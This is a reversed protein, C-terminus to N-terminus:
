KFINSGRDPNSSNEIRGTNGNFDLVEYAGTPLDRSKLIEIYMGKEVGATRNNIETAEADTIGKLVPKKYMNWLGVLTNVIREIDGAEGINTPHLRMLNTVERNFQAALILPLGTTVAVDKLSICIQKLEEVRSSYNRYKDQPLKLLQFYDIFVGGINGAEKNLYQIAGTLEQSNYDVYKVLIRGTEIYTKFFTAKKEEFEKILYHSFFQTSGTKFYEKIIRRNAKDSSNLNENIYANLFYQVISNAREEYTFFIFRKDPYSEAVNLVMNILAITKGHNTPAAVVTIAGGPLLFENGGVTYGTDLSDPLSLEEEKIIAESTTTLLKSFETKKDQLKVEKVKTELKGLAEEVKGEAQLKTAETLLKKLEQAQAEKERTATIRDVTISLSEQTIGLAQIAELSTFLTKYREKDTADHINTATEVVEDLLNDIDKPQLGREEEIQGYKELTAQLKYEYYPLAQAIAQRFAEVGREKILSDPDTKIGEIIPLNVIYVRNVGEALITDIAKLTGSGGAKDNDLCLTFKKAGKSLAHKIQEPSLNVGGLGVVNDVGKAESILADLYGEVIVIDKDGKAPKINFFTESRVLGTSNLYKNAQGPTITRFVFGKLNGASRFPLSLRNEEGINKHLKIEDILAQSYKQKQLYSYLKAQSPIFGLEMTKIDQATYGRSALYNRTDKAGPANELCYIFYSNCDELITARDKYSNYGDRDIDGKPLQLSVVEALTKVADLFAVNDRNIVYDVLSIAKDGNELIFGPAKSSVVTKDPTPTKPKSGDRKLSSLWKNGHRKFNLEPLAKDISEFLTPYLDGKIWDTINSM